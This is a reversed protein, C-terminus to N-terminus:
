LAFVFLDNSFEHMNLNKLLAVQLYKLINWSQEDTSRKRSEPLRKMHNM